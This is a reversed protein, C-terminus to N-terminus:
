FSITLIEPYKTLSDKLEQSMCTKTYVPLIPGPGEIPRPRNANWNPYIFHITIFTEAHNKEGVFAKFLFFLNPIYNHNM